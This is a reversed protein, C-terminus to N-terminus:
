KWQTLKTKLSLEKTENGETWYVTVVVDMQGPDALNKTFSVKRSYNLNFTTCPNGTYETLNGDVDMCYDTHSGTTDREAFTNWGADREKRVIELAEQGYQTALSRAKSAQATKLSSTIGVVLGTILLTVVGLTVVSEILSVGKTVFLLGNKHM